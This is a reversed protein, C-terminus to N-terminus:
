VFELSPAGPNQLLEIETIFRHIADQDDNSLNLFRYGLRAFKRGDPLSYAVKHRLEMDISLVAVRPLELRCDRVVNGSTLDNTDGFVILGIGGASLDFADCQTAPAGAILLECRVPEAESLAVRYRERRDFRLMRTPLTVLIVNDTIPRIGGAGVVFELRAPGSNASFVLSESRPAGSVQSPTAECTITLSPQSLHVADITAAFSEQESQITLPSRARVVKTLLTIIEAASHHEYCNYDAAM